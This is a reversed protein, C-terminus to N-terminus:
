KSVFIIVIDGVASLVYSPLIDLDRTSELCAGLSGLIWNISKCVTLKTIFFPVNYCCLAYPHANMLIMKLSSM